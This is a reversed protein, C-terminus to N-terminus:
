AGMAQKIVDKILIGTMKRRYDVSMKLNETYNLQRIALDTIDEILNMDISKNQVLRKLDRVKVPREFAGGIALSMRSCTNDLNRSLVMAISIVTVGMAEKTNLCAYGWGVNEQAKFSVEKLIEGREIGTKRNGLVFDDLDLSREGNNSVLLLKAKMALLPPILDASSAYRCPIVGGGSLTTCGPYGCTGCNAGASCINGGITAMNRVEPSGIGGAARILLPSTKLLLENELLENIKIGAGIRIYENDSKIYRLEELRNISVLLRPRLQRHRIKLLVDTGGALLHANNRGDLIRLADALSSAKEYGFKFM